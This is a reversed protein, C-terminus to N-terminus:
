EGLMARLADATTGDHTEHAVQRLRTVLAVVEPMPEDPRRLRAAALRVFPEMGHDTKGGDVLMDAHSDLVNALDANTTINTNAM